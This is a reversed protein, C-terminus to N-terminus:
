RQLIFTSKSRQWVTRRTSVSEAIANIQRNDCQYHAFPQILWGLKRLNAIPKETRTFFTAWKKADEFVKSKYNKPKQCPM